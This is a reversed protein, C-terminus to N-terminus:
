EPLVRFPQTKHSVTTTIGSKDTLNWYTRMQYTGVKLPCVKQLYWSLRVVKIGTELPSYLSSGSGSCNVKEVCNVCNIEAVWIGLAERYINRDYDILPDNGIKFDPVSVRVTMFTDPRNLFKSFGSYAALLSIVLAAAVLASAIQQLFKM